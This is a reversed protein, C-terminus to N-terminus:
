ITTTFANGLSHGYTLRVPMAVWGYVGGIGKDKSREEVKILGAARLTGMVTRDYWLAHIRAAITDRLDDFITFADKGTGLKMFVTIEAQINGRATRNSPEVLDDDDYLYLGPLKITELDIGVPNRRHFSNVEPVGATLASLVAKMIQTKVTDAM